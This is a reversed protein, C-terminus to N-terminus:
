SDTIAGCNDLLLLLANVLIWEMRPGWSEAWVAKFASVVNSAVLHRKHEPVNELINFGMPIETPDFYICPVTDAIAEALDGHPDLLCFSNKQLIKNQLFTSKGVGSKGIIYEHREDHM